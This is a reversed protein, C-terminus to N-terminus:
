RETRVLNASGGAGSRIDNGGHPVEETSSALVSAINALLIARWFVNEHPDAVAIARSFSEQAGSLDGVQLRKGGIEALAEARIRTAFNESWTNRGVEDAAMMAAAFAQKASRHEECEIAELGLEALAIARMRAHDLHKAAHLAAAFTERAGEADRIQLQASWISVLPPIRHLFRLREAIRKASAVLRRAKLRNGTRAHASALDALMEACKRNRPGLQCAARVAKHAGELDGSATQAGSIVIAADLIPYPSEIEELIDMARGPEGAAVQAKAMASLVRSRYIEAEVRVSGEAEADEIESIMAAARTAGVRDGAAALGEGAGAVVM